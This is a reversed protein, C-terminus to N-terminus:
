VPVLTSGESLTEIPVRQQDLRRPLHRIPSNCTSMTGM